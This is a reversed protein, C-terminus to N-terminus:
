RYRSAFLVFSDSIQTQLFRKGLFVIFSLKFFIDNLLEAKFQFGPYHGARLFSPYKGSFESGLIHNM